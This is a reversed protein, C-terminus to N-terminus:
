WEFIKGLYPQIPVPKGLENSIISCMRDVDDSVIDEINTMGSGYLHLSKYALKRIFAWSKSYDMNGFTMRGRSAVVLSQRPSRGAM